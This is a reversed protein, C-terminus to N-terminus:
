AAAGPQALWVQQNILGSNLNGGEQASLLFVLTTLPAFALRVAVDRPSRAKPPCLFLACNAEGSLGLFCALTRRIGVHANELSGAAFAADQGLSVIKAISPPARMDTVGCARLSEMPDGVDIVEQNLLILM